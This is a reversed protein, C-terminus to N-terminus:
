VSSLRICAVKYCSFLGRVLVGVFRWMTAEARGHWQRTVDRHCGIDCSGM